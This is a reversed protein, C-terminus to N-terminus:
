SQSGHLCLCPHTRVTADLCSHISGNHATEASLSKAVHHGETFSNREQWQWWGRRKAGGNTRRDCGAEEEGRLKSLELLETLSTLEKFILPSLCFHTLPAAPRCVPRISPLCLPSGPVQSGVSCRLFARSPLLQERWLRAYVCASLRHAALYAWEWLCVCMHRQRGM